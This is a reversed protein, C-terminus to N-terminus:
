SGVGRVTAVLIPTMEPVVRERREIDQRWSREEDQLEQLRASRVSQLGLREIMRRRAAFGAEAREQERRVSERHVQLLEEYLAKGQAEAAAWVTGYEAEPLASGTSDMVDFQGALIQEWVHRATPHLVQGDSQRFLPMIRQRQRRAAHLEIRWLSWLGSVSTPLNRIALVPASQQHVFM